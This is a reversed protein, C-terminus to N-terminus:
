ARRKVLRAGEQSVIMKAKKVVIKGVMKERATRDVIKVKVKVKERIKGKVMMRMAMIITIMM